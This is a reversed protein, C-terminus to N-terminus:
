PIRVSSPDTSRSRDDDPARGPIKTPTGLGERVYLRKVLVFAVVTLPAALVVGIGGLLVGAAVISFLLLAAPLDVARQQILPQVLNGEIQQVLVFLVIVWAVSDLGQTSAVVVAPVAAVIPGVIPVFDFAAAVLALAFASPVELWWLGLWTLAGVLAMAVFQGGLWLRLARGCDGLAEDVTPRVAPPALKALGRRYLDPRAALYIGGAVVLLLDAIGTALSALTAQVTALVSSGSPAADRLWADLRPGCAARDLRDRLSDWAGPLTDALQRVQGGIEAGFLAAVGGVGGALVIVAAALAAPRPLGVKRGLGAVGDLVLAFLVAALVLLLVGRLTWAAAMLAAVGVAVLTIRAVSGASV